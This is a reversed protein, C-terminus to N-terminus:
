AVVGDFVTACEKVWRNVEARNGIPAVEIVKQITLRESHLQDSIRDAVEPFNFTKGQVEVAARIKSGNYLEFKREPGHYLNRMVHTTGGGVMDLYEKLLQLSDRQSNIVWLTVLKRGLEQMSETLLTGYLRVGEGSRAPTNIVVTEDPQEALRNVMDMWGDKEDLNIYVTEVTKGYAKGVDPNATDADVLLLKEGRKTLYHILSMSVISKGVGGKSGSVMYVPKGM